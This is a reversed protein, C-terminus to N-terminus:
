RVAPTVTHLSFEFDKGSFNSITGKFAQNDKTWQVSLDRSGRRMPLLLIEARDNAKLTIDNGAESKVILSSKAGLRIAANNPPGNTSGSFMYGSLKTTDAANAADALLDWYPKLRGFQEPPLSSGTAGSKGAPVWITMTTSIRDGPFVIPPARLEIYAGGNLAFALLEKSTALVQMETDADNLNPYPDGEEWFQLVIRIAAHISKSSSESMLKTLEALFLRNTPRLKASTLLAETKLRDDDASSAITIVKEFGDTYKVDGIYKIAALRLDESASSVAIAVASSGLDQHSFNQMIVLRKEPQRVIWRYPSEDPPNLMESLFSNADAKKREASQANLIALTDEFEQTELSELKLWAKLRDWEFKPLDLTTRNRNLSTLEAAIIARNVLDNITQRVGVESDRNQILADVRQKMYDTTQNAIDKWTTLGFVTFIALLLAFAGGIIKLALSGADRLIGRERDLQDRIEAQVMAKIQSPIAGEQDTEPPKPEVEQPHKPPGNRSM